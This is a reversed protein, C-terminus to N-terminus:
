QRPVKKRVENLIERFYFPKLDLLIRQIMDNDANYQLLRLRLAGTGANYRAYLVLKRANFGLDLFNPTDLHRRASLM